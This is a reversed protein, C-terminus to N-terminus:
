PSKEFKMAKGSLRTGSATSMEVFYLGPPFHNPIAFSKTGTNNEQNLLIIGKIDIIEIQSVIERSSIVLEGSGNFYVTTPEIIHDKQDNTIFKCQDPWYGTIYTCYGQYIQIRETSYVGELCAGFYWNPISWPYIPSYTSGIGEIWILSRELTDQGILITDNM